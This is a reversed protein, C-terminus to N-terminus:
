RSAAQWAIAPGLCERRKAAITEDRGVAGISGLKGAACNAADTVVIGHGVDRPAGAAFADGVPQGTFILPFGGAAAGIGAAVGPAIERSLAQGDAQVMAM